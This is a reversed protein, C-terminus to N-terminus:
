EEIYLKAQVVRVEEDNNIDCYYCSDLSIAGSELEMYIENDKIRVFVEGIGVQSYKTTNTNKRIIEM